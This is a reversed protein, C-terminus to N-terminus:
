SILQRSKDLSDKERAKEYLTKTALIEKIALGGFVSTDSEWQQLIQIYDGKQAQTILFDLFGAKIAGHVSTAVHLRSKDFLLWNEAEAASTPVKGEIASLGQLIVTEVSGIGGTPNIPFFYDIDYYRVKFRPFHFSAFPDPAFSGGMAMPSPIFEPACISTSWYRWLDDESDNFYMFLSEVLASIEPSMPLVLSPNTSLYAMSVRYVGLRASIDDEM